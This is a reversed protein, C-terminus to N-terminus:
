SVSEIVDLLASWSRVDDCRSTGRTPVLSMGETFYRIVAVALAAPDSPPALLGSIENDIIDELGGVATAIVPCGFGLAMQVAGSGTARRYPAVLVDAASFYIAVEENPIYRDEIIVLDAVELTEIMELYSRKHEWFEGAVVLTLEGLQARIRPLAALLDKLGKYERVFGFFLLIPTDLPLRLRQRAEEQPMQQDAFMDYVPHPVISIPVDRTRSSLRDREELSQVIFQSGWLWALRALWSDWPQAEHPLVNHCIYVLPSQLFLRDLAGLVFWVPAWFSTWWQLVIADPAYKWIRWFATLWTVLNLSDLWYRADQV